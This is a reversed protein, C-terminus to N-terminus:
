ASPTRRYYHGYKVNYVSCNRVVIRSSHDVANTPTYFTVGRQTGGSGTGKIVIGEIVQTGHGYQTGSDPTQVGAGGGTGLGTTASVGPTNSAALPSPVFGYQRM